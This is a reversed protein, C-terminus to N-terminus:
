DVGRPYLGDPRLSVVGADQRGPRFGNVTHDHGRPPVGLPQRVGFNWSGSTGDSGETARATQSSTMNSLWPRSRRRQGSPGTTRPQSTTASLISCATIAPTSAAGVIAGVIIGVKSQPCSRSMCTESSPTCNNADKPANRFKVVNNGPRASLTWTSRVMIQKVFIDAAYFM